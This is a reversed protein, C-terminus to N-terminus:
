EAQNNLIEYLRNVSDTFEISMYEESLMTSTKIEYIFKKLESINIENKNLFNTLRDDEFELDIIQLHKKIENVMSTNTM